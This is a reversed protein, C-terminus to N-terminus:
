RFQTNINLILELKRKVFKDKPLHVSALHCHCMNPCYNCYHSTHHGNQKMRGYVLNLFSM